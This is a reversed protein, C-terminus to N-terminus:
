KRALHAYILLNAVLLAAVGGWICALGLTDSSSPNSVMQKGMVLMIIVAAAPVASLAFASIFQGGKFILGLAAGMAVMLFCSGGYAVRVHLEAKLGSREKPIRDNLLADMAKLINPNSTLSNPDDYLDALGVDESRATVEAPVPIEGRAWQIDRSVRRGSAGLYDVMVDMKLEITVQPHRTMESWTIIIRGQQATVIENTKGGRRIMVTVLKGERGDPSVSKLVAAGDKDIDAWAAEVELQEDGQVFRKYSKGAQIAKIIDQALMDSSLDRKIRGLDRQVKPHRGPDKLTALLDTLSYWSSKDKVPNEMPMIIPVDKGSIWPPSSDATSGVLAPDITRISVQDDGNPDRIFKMYAASASGLFVKDPKPQEGPKPPKAHQVYSYVIGYLANADADVQDAHIIHREGGRGYDVYGRTKLQHFFIHRMNSQVLGALSSLRPAVVNIMALSLLTVIVGMGLAPRLLSVASIGSAKAALLENDQSFRGYVLTGAFLTAIPMTLSLMVPITYLFLHFLQEGALGLKRLPQIIVLVSMLLTICVLSLLSVKILDKLLYSHLTKLL